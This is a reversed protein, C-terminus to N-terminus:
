NPHSYQDQIDHTQEDSIVQVKEACAQQQPQSAEAGPLSSRLSPLEGQPKDPLFQQLEIQQQQELHPSDFQIIYKQSRSYICKWGASRM